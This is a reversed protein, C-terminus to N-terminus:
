QMNCNNELGLYLFVFFHESFCASLYIYVHVVKKSLIASLRQIKPYSGQDDSKVSNFNRLHKSTFNFNLKQLVYSIVIKIQLLLICKCNQVCM